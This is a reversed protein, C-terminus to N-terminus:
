GTRIHYLRVNGKRCNSVINDDKLKKLHYRVTRESMGLEKAIEKSTKGGCEALFKAIKRAKENQLSKETKELQEIKFKLSENRLAKVIDPNPRGYGATQYNFSFGAQIVLNYLNVHHVISAILDRALRELEKKPLESKEYYVCAELKPHDYISQAPSRYKKPRYTKIHIINGNLNLMARSLFIVDQSESKQRMETLAFGFLRYLTIIANRVKHEAKEDYRIFQESYILRRVARSLDIKRHLIGFFEKIEDDAQEPDGTLIVQFISKREFESVEIVTPEAETERRYVFIRNKLKIEKADLSEANFITMRREDFYWDEYDGRRAKWFFAKVTNYPYTSDFVYIVRGRHWNIVVSPNKLDSHGSGIGNL